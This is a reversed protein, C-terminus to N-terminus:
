CTSQAIRGGRVQHVEGYRLFVPRGTAPITLWDRRFTGCYHGLMAVYDRGEYEGGAVILDRRELDPFAHLLPQWVRAAVAETGRMENLPHAGRWEADPHYIEGLRTELAAPAAETLEALRAHLRRKNTRHRSGM